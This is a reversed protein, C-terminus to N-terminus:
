AAVEDTAARRRRPPDVRDLATELNDLRELLREGWAEDKMDSLTTLPIGSVEAIQTMTFRGQKLGRRFRKLVTLTM